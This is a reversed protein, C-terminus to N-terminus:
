LYVNSRCIFVRKIGKQQEPSGVCCGVISLGLSRAIEIYSAVAPIDSLNEPISIGNNEGNSLFQHIECVAHIEIKEKVANDSKTIASISNGKKTNKEPIIQVNKGLLIAYGGNEALRNLIRGASSTMSVLRNNSGKQRIIKIMEKRKKELDAISSPNKKTVKSVTKSSKVVPKSVKLSSILRNISLIEGSSIGLNKIMIKEDDISDSVSKASYTQDKLVFSIDDDALIGESILRKRLDSVSDKEEDVELRQLSGNPLRVRLIVATQGILLISLLIVIKQYIM